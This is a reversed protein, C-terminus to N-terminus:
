LRTAVSHLSVGALSLESAVALELLIFHGTRPGQERDGDRSRGDTTTCGRRWARRSWDGHSRAIHILRRCQRTFVLQQGVLLLVTGDAALWQAAHPCGDLHHDAVSRDEETTFATPARHFFVRLLIERDEICRSSSWRFRSGGGRGFGRSRSRFGRRSRRWFSGCVRLEAVVPM